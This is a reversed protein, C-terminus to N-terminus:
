RCEAKAEWTVDTEGVERFEVSDCAPCYLVGDAVEVASMEVTFTTGCETNTCEFVVMKM